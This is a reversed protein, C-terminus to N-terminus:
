LDAVIELLANLTYGGAANSVASIWAASPAITGTSLTGIPGSSYNNLVNVSGVPRMQVLTQAVASVTVGSASIYGANFAQTRLYFRQCDAFDHRINRKEGASAYPAVEVMPLWFTVTGNRVGLANSRANWNTGSSLWISFATYSDGNTGVTKGVISPVTFTLSYRAWTTSLTFTRGTGGLGQVMSSPSGGTGFLQQLELSIPQGATAAKAWFSATVTKGALRRVNEIRQELIDFGSAATDGTFTYQLGFEAEEDGIAARDTDTLNIISVSRSGGSSSNLLWRDATYSGATTWPGTGRQQVRFLSNHLYNKFGQPNNLSVNGSGDVQLGGSTPVILGGPTTTTGVWGQLYQLPVPHLPASPNGSLVLPGTMSVNGALPVMGNVALTIANVDAAPLVQGSQYNTKLPM